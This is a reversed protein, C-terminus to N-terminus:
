IDQNFLGFKYIFMDGFATDVRKIEMIKMKETDTYYVQTRIDMPITETDSNNKRLSIFNTKNLNDIGAAAINGTLIVPCNKYEEQIKLWESVCFIKESNKLNDPILTSTIVVNYLGIDILTSLYTNMSKLSQYESNHHSQIKFESLVAHGYQRGSNNQTEGFRFYMDTASQLENIIDLRNPLDPYRTVGQLAFIQIDEKKLIALLNSIATKSYKTSENSLNLGSINFTLVPEKLKRTEPTVTEFEKLTKCGILCSFIILPIFYKKKMKM